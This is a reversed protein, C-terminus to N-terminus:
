KKKELYNKFEEFIMFDKKQKLEKSKILNDITETLKIIKEKDLKNANLSHKVVQIKEIISSHIESETTNSKLLNEFLKIIDQLNDDQM